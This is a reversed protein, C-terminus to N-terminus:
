LRIEGKGLKEEFVALEEPTGINNMNEKPVEYVNVKLGDAIIYNFVPSNYFEGNTRDNKLIM